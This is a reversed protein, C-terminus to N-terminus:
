NTPAPPLLSTDAGFGNDAPMGMSSTDFRPPPPIMISRANKLGTPASLSYVKETVEKETAEPNLASWEEFETIAKGFSQRAKAEENADTWSIQSEGKQLADFANKLFPDKIDKPSTRQPYKELFRREREADSLKGGKETYKGDTNKGTIYELSEETFGAQALKDRDRLLGSKVATSAAQEKVPNGFWGGKYLQKMDERGMDAAKKRADVQGSRAQSIQRSLEDKAAGPPLTRVLSDMEVYKEDFDETEVNYNALMASVQGVVGHQYSPQAREFKKAPDDIAREALKIKYKEVVSPSLIGAAMRDIQEPKTITGDSMGNEIADGVEGLLQRYNAKAVEKLRARQNLDLNSYNSWTGDDGKGDLEAIVGLPDVAAAQEVSQIEFKEQVSMRLQEAEPKSVIRAAEMNDIEGLARSPTGMKLSQEIINGSSIKSQRINESFASKAINATSTSAFQAFREGIMAQQEPALSEPLNQKKFDELRKMWREPVTKPDPDNFTEQQFQSYLENAKLELENAQRLNDVRQHQVIVDMGKEGLGQITEGVQQAANYPAAAAAMSIEGGSQFAQILSKGPLEISAM